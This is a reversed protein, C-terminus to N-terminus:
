ALTVKSGTADSLIQEYRAQESEMAEAIAEHYEALTFVGKEILLRAIALDNVLCSNVGVRLHKPTAAAADAGTKSLPLHPMEGLEAAVGSQVAHAAADYRAQAARIRELDEEPLASVDLPGGPEGLGTM